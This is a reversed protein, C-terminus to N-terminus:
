NFEITDSSINSRLMLICVDPMKGLLNFSAEMRFLEILHRIFFFNFIANYLFMSHM